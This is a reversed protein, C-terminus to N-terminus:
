LDFEVLEQTFVVLREENCVPVESFLGLVGDNKQLLFFSRNGSPITPGLVM